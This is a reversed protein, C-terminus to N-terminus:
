KQHTLLQSLILKMDKQLASQLASLLAETTQAVRKLDLIEQTLIAIDEEVSGM